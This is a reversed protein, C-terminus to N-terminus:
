AKLNEFTVSETDLRFPSSTCSDFSLKYANDASTFTINSNPLPNSITYSISVDNKLTYKASQKGLLYPTESMSDQSTIDVLYTGNADTPPLPSGPM